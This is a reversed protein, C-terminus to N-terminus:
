KCASPGDLGASAHGLRASVDGDGGTILNRGGGQDGEELRSEGYGKTPM